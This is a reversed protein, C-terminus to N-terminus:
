RIVVTCYQCGRRSPEETMNCTSGFLRQPKPPTTLKAKMILCMNSLLHMNGQLKPFLRIRKNVRTYLILLLKHNVDLNCLCNFDQMMKATKM